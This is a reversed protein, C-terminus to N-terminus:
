LQKKLKFSSSKMNEQSNLWIYTTLQLRADKEQKMIRKRAIKKDHQGGLDLFIIEKPNERYTTQSWWINTHAQLTNYVCM